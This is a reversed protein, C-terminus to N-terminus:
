SQDSQEKNHEPTLISVKSGAEAVELGQQQAGQIDAM